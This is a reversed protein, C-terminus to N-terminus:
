SDFDVDFLAGYVNGSVNNVNVDIALINGSSLANNKAMYVANNGPISGSFSITTTPSTPGGGGGGGGCASIAFIMCITPIIRLHKSLSLTVPLFAARWKEATGRAMMSLASTGKARM